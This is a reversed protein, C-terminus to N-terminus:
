LVSVPWIAKSMQVIVKVFNNETTRGTTQLPLRTLAAQTSSVISSITAIGQLFHELINYLIGKLLDSCLQSFSTALYSTQNLRISFTIVIIMKGENSQGMLQWLLGVKNRIVHIKKNRCLIGLTMENKM